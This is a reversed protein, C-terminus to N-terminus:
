VLRLVGEGFLRGRELWQFDTPFMNDKFEIGYAYEWIRYPIKEKAPWNEIFALVQTENCWGGSITLKEAGVLRNDDVKKLIDEFATTTNM